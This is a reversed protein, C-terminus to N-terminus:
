QTEGGREVRELWFQHSMYDGWPTPVAIGRLMLEDGGYVKGTSEERYDAEPDLGALKLLGTRRFPECRGYVHTVVARKGDGAVSMWACEDGQYPSRLRYFRGYLLVDQWDRVRQNLAAVEKLEEEPLKRLDLEYGYTGGMAVAARTSLPSLRGTQHNPVASVHAGMCCPPFVLSTSYQIHCRMWADTDDSTWAQPALCMMGLDFRGGGGACSEFLVKPFRRIVEGMVEYVGLIYRHHFEKMRGAPLEASGVMNINRNMDWKVYDVQGRELADSIIGTVYQRVDARTLDLVLQHRGEIRMRNGAHICWDPHARYLESDPSIMEPEVWLGFKMGLGHIKDSLARLGGPLKKPDDFWDGLSSYDDDRHGFWGDDMVFLDIGRDRACAAISVLKEEDFDFYAAEWHNILIPRPTKAYPGSVIHERVLQHFNQSMGNLGADSWCLYAEPTQFSEGPNLQWSFDFPQIGMMMRAGHFQDVQVTAQFSGSYCLAMAYVQGKREDTGRETLAFFPSSQHSSAGRVTSTGQDGQVLPRVSIARERAWAGGLTILDYDSDEFDVCASFAKEATVASKGGNTLKVSRAIIDTDAWITYALDARMGNEPDKLTLILTEAGEGRAAPLGDLAPKGKLIEHGAYRLDLATTGDEQRIHIMGERMDGMGFVPCELPLRDLPSEHLSFRAADTGTMRAILDDHVGRLARGWYAHLPYLGAGLAIVYSVSGNTLHFIGEKESVHIM